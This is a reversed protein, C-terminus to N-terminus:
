GHEPEKTPTPRKTMDQEPGTPEWLKGNDDVISIDDVSVCANAIYKRCPTWFSRVRYPPEACPPQALRRPHIWLAGDHFAGCETCWRANADELDVTEHHQCEESPQSARVAAVLVRLDDKFPDEEDFLGIENAVRAAAAAVEPPPPQSPREMAEIADGVKDILDGDAIGARGLMECAEVCKPCQANGTGNCEKCTEVRDPEPANPHGYEITGDGLCAECRAACPEFEARRRKAEMVVDPYADEVYYLERRLREIEAAARLDLDRHEPMYIDRTYGATCEYRTRLENSLDKSSPQTPPALFDLVYIPAGELPTDWWLYESRGDESRRKIGIQKYVGNTM